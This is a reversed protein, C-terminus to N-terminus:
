LGPSGPGSGHRVGPGGHITISGGPSLHHLRDAVGHRGLADVFEAHPRDLWTPPGPRLRMPSYTGWHIPVVRAAHLRGVAIAAREPDLHREGLTPGWGWIPLLAVDLPGLDAMADFLDTDGPFYVRRGVAGVVYGVPDARVSSHPGRHRYHEAHVVALEVPHPGAGVIVRDGPRVEEVDAAGLGAVLRAAGAPVVVRAGAVVRRLSPRHLHDHHVHSIAVVDLPALEATSLPRRRRLHAVRRTLLPDTLIRRGAVEVLVTAHGLWTVRVDETPEAIGPM